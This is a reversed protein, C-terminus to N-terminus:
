NSLQIVIGISFSFSVVKNSTLIQHVKDVEDM